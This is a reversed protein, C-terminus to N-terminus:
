NIINVEIYSKSTALEISKFQKCIDIENELGGMIFEM